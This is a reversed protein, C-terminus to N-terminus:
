RDIDNERAGVEPEVKPEDLMRARRESIALAPISMTLLITAINLWVCWLLKQQTFYSRQFIRVAVCAVLCIIGLVGNSETIAQWNDYTLDALTWVRLDPIGIAIYVGCSITFAVVSVARVVSAALKNM